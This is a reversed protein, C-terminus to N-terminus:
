LRKSRQLQQTVNKHIDTRKRKLRVLRSKLHHEREQIVEHDSLPVSTIGPIYSKSVIDSDFTQGPISKRKDWDAATMSAGLNPATEQLFKTLITSSDSEEKKLMSTPPGFTRTQAVETVIIPKGKPMSMSEDEHIGQQHDRRQTTGEKYYFKQEDKEGSVIGPKKNDTKQLTPLGHTLREMLPSGLKGEKGGPTVAAVNIPSIRASIQTVEPSGDGTRLYAQRQKNEDQNSSLSNRTSAKEESKRIKLQRQLKRLIQVQNEYLQRPKHQEKNDNVPQPLIQGVYAKSQLPISKLNMAPESKLAPSIMKSGRSGVLNTTVPVLRWRSGLKVPNVLYKYPIQMQRFKITTPLNNYKANKAQLLTGGNQNSDLTKTTQRINQIHRVSSLQRILPQSLQYQNQIQKRQQFLQQKSLLNIPLISRQFPLMRGTVKNNTKFTNGYLQQSPRWQQSAEKRNANSTQAPNKIVLEAYYKRKIDRLNSNKDPKASSDGQKKAPLLGQTVENLQLNKQPYLRLRISEPFNPYKKGELRKSNLFQNLRKLPTRQIEQNTGRQKETIKSKLKQYINKWDDIKFQQYKLPNQMPQIQSGSKMGTENRLSSPKSIAAYTLPKNLNQIQMKSLPSVYGGTRSPMQAKMNVSNGRNSFAALGKGEEKWGVSDGAFSPMPKPIISSLEASNTEFLSNYNPFDKMKHLNNEMANQNDNERGKSFYQMGMNEGVQNMVNQRDENLIESPRKNLYNAFMNEYINKLVTALSVNFPLKLSVVKGRNQATQGNGNAVEKTPFSTMLEIFKQHTRPVKLYVIPNQNHYSDPPSKYNRNLPPIYKRQDAVKGSQANMLIGGSRGQGADFKPHSGSLADLPGKIRMIYNGGDPPIVKIRLAFPWPHIRSNKQEKNGMFQAIRIDPTSKRPGRNIQSNIGATEKVPIRNSSQLVPKSPLNTVQPVTPKQRKREEELQKELVREQYIKLLDLNYQFPRPTPWPRVKRVTPTVANELGRNTTADSYPNTQGTGTYASIVAPVQSSYSQVTPPSAQPPQAPSFTNFSQSDEGNGGKAQTFFQNLPDNELPKTEYTQYNMANVAGNNNDNNNDIINNNNGFYKWYNSTEYNGQEYPYVPNTQYQNNSWSNQAIKQNNGYYAEQMQTYNSLFEEVPKFTESIQPYQNLLTQLKSESSWQPLQPPTEATDRQNLQEAPINSTAPQTSKQKDLLSELMKVWNQMDKSLETM